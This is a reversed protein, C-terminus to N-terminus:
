CGDHKIEKEYMICISHVGYRAQQYRMEIIKIDPNQRLWDNAKVDAMYADCDVTGTFIKFQVM